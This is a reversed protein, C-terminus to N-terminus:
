NKDSIGVAKSLIESSTAKPNTMLFDAMESIQEDTKVLLMIGVINEQSVKLFKLCEVLQAQSNNLQM